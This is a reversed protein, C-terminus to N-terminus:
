FCASTPWCNGKVTGASMHEVLTLIADSTGRNPMFGHQECRIITNAEIHKHIHSNIITELVKGLCSLLSIPRYNAPDQKDKNGKPINTIISSKWSTPFYQVKICSNFLHTLYQIISFPLHKIMIASIGDHGPASRGKKNKIIIQVEEMTTEQLNNGDNNNQNTYNTVANVITTHEPLPRIELPKFVGSYHKHFVELKKNIETQLRGNEDKLASTNDLHTSNTLLRNIEQWFRAPDTRNELRRTQESQKQLSINIYAVRIYENIKNKLRILFIPNGVHRSSYLTRSIKNRINKLDKIYKSDKRHSNIKIQKKPIYQNAARKILKTIHAVAVDIERIATLQNPCNEANQDLWDAFGDWDAKNYQWSTIQSSASDPGMRVILPLHDSEIEGLTHAVIGKNILNNSAFVLDIKSYLMKGSRDQFYTYEDAKNIIELNNNDTFNKLAVGAGTTVTDGFAACRANMDGIFIVNGTPIILSNNIKTTAKIYIGIINIKIGSATISIQIANQNNTQNITSQLPFLSNRYYIILNLKKDAHTILSFNYNVITRIDAIRDINSESIILIAPNNKDLLDVVDLWKHRLGNVNISVVLSSFAM